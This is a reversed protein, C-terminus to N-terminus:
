LICYLVTEQVSERRYHRLFFHYNFDMSKILFPIRLLDDQKHYVSIALTPSWQRISNYAGVLAEYESGEIDMNIFTVKNGQLLTDITKVPIKMKGNECIYGSGSGIDHFFMQGEFNWVGLPFCEIREIQLKKITELLKQYNKRDAECCYIKQFNYNSRKVYNEVTDGTYAGCNFFVDKESYKILERDFYQESPPDAIERILEVEHGIKYNLINTLVKKSKEDELMDYVASFCGINNWIFEFDSGAIDLVAIDPVLIRAETIGYDRLQQKVEDSQGCTILILENRYDTMLDKPKYVLKGCFERGQKDENNDAFSISKGAINPCNASLWKFTKAGGFGAGFIILSPEQEIKALLDNLYNGIGNKKYLKKKLENEM